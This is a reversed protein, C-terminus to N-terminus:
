FDLGFYDDILDGAPGATGQVNESRKCKWNLDVINLTDPTDSVMELMVSTGDPVAYANSHSERVLILESGNNTVTFGEFKASKVPANLTVKIKLATSIHLTPNHDIRLAIKTFPDNPDSNREIPRTSDVAVKWCSSGKLAGSGTAYVGEALEENDFIVPSVYNKM